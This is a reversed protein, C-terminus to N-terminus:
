RLRALRLLVRELRRRRALLIPLAIKCCARSCICDLHGDELVDLEDGSFVVLMPTHSNADVKLVTAGLRKYTEVGVKSKSAVSGDM